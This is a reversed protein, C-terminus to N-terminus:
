IRALKEAIVARQATDPLEEWNVLSLRVVKGPYQLIYVFNRPYIFKDAKVAGWLEANETKYSSFVFNDVAKKYFRDSDTKVIECYLRKHRETPVTDQSIEIITMFPNETVNYEYSYDDYTIEDFDEIKLPIDDKYVYFDYKKSNDPNTYEITKVPEKGYANINIGYTWGTISGIGYSLCLVVALAMMGTFFGNEMSTTGSKKFFTSLKYAVTYTVVVMLIMVMVYRISYALGWVFMSLLLMIGSAAVAKRSTYTPPLPMGDRAAAKAKKLWRNWVSLNFFAAFFLCLWPLFAYWRNGGTLFRVPNNYFDYFTDLFNYISMYSAMRWGTMGSNNMAKEINEAQVASDTDLPQPNYSTSYFVQVISKEAALKWGAAACIDVFEEHRPLSDPDTSDAESFYTVTFHIDAPEIATYTNTFTGMKCLLWGKAAMKEFHQAMGTHDYPAFYEIRKKREKM